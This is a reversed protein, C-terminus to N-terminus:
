LVMQVARYIAFVIVPFLVGVAMLRRTGVTAIEERGSRLGLPLLAAVLISRYRQHIMGSFGLAIVGLVVVGFLIARTRTWPDGALLRLVIALAAASCVASSLWVVIGGIPYNFPSVYLPSFLHSVGRIPVFFSDVVRNPSGMHPLLSGAFFSESAITETKSYGAFALPNDTDGRESGADGGVVYLTMTAAMVLLLARPGRAKSSGGRFEFSIALALALLPVAVSRVWFMCGALVSVILAQAWGPARSTCARLGCAVLFVILPEKSTTGAWDIAEPYLLWLTLFLLPTASGPEKRALPVLLFGAAAWLVWNFVCGVLPDPTVLGYVLSLVIPYGPQAFVDMDSGALIELLSYQANKQAFLHYRPADFGFDLSNQAINPIFEATAYWVTLALSAAAVLAILVHNINRPERNM